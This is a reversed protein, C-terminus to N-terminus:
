HALLERVTDVILRKQLVPRALAAFVHGGPLWQLQFANDGSNAQNEEGGKMCKQIQQELERAYKPKIFEDHYMNYGKIVRIPNNRNQAVASEKKSKQDSCAEMLIFTDMQTQYLEDFLIERASPVPSDGSSGAHPRKLATWQVSSELIGDALVCPSASGVYAACGLRQGDVGAVLAYNSAISAMAAGFSFGTLCVRRPSSGEQPSQQAELFYESLAAAEQIVALAQMLIDEVTHLFFLKQSKPKRDGYYPATVIVSCWGYEKALTKAMFLRSAINTEGTAPLMLIYVQKETMATGNNPVQPALGASAELDPKVLFFQAYASEPPRNDAQPSRFRGEQMTIGSSPRTTPGWQLDDNALKFRTTTKHKPATTGGREVELEVLSQIQRRRAAEIDGYGGEFFKPQVPGLIKLFLFAYDLLGLVWSLTPFFSSELWSTIM